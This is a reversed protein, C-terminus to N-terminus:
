LFASGHEDRLVPRVGGGARCPGNGGSVPCFPSCCGTSMPPCNAVSAASACFGGKQCNISTSASPGPAGEGPMASEKFCVFLDGASNYCAQGEPCDQVLPDCSGAPLDAALRRQLGRLQGDSHEPLQRQHRLVRRLGRGAGGRRDAPLHQRARMTSAPTSATRSTARTASRARATSRSARTSAAVAGRGARGGHVETRRSLRAGASRM